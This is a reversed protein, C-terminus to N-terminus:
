AQWIYKGCHKKSSQAQLQIDVARSHTERLLPYAPDGIIHVPIDIGELMKGISPFLGDAQGMHYIDSNTFVRADHVSGPWGVTIDM